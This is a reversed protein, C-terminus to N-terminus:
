AALPLRVSIRTGVGERSDLCIHGQSEEVIRLVSALGLGTGPLRGVNGGRYYPEFVFPVDGAPIGIGHDIVRVVAWCGESDSVRGLQVDVTSGRRSYKVANSILKALMRELQEADWRGELAGPGGRLRIDHNRAILQELRVVRLAVAALDTKGTDVLLPRPLQRATAMLGALSAESLYIAASRAPTGQHM